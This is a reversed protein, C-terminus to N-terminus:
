GAEVLATSTGHGYSQGTYTKYTGFSTFNYNAKRIILLNHTQFTTHNEWNLPTHNLQLEPCRM